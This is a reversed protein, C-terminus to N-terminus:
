DTHYGYGQRESNWDEFDRLLVIGKKFKEEQEILWPMKEPHGKLHRICIAAESLVSSFSIFFIEKDMLGRSIFLQAIEVTDLVHLAPGDYMLDVKQDQPLLLVHHLTEVAQTFQNGMYHEAFLIFGRTGREVQTALFARIEFIIFLSALTVAIAELGTWFAIQDSRKWFYVATFVGIIILIVPIINRFVARKNRRYISTIRARRQQRALARIVKVTDKNQNKTGSFKQNKPDHNGIDIEKTDDEEHYEAKM